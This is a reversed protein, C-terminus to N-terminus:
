GAWRPRWRSRRQAPQKGDWQPEPQGAIKAVLRGLDRTIQERGGPDMLLVPTGQNAAEVVRPGASVITHDVRVGLTQELHEMQVGSNARNLVITLKDRLGLTNALKLVQGTNRISSLEPTTVLLIRDAVELLQLMYEEMSPHTDVIVYDFLARYATAVRAPLFPPITEVLAPEPPALLAKINSSHPVLVNRLVDLDLQDGHHVLSAFSHEGRLDLLVSVDGFWLDADVLVVQKDYRQALEVALNTAITSRGVGGKPGFMVIMEGNRFPAHDGTQPAAPVTVATPPPAPAPLTLGARLVLAQIRLVLEDVRAPMRAYDDLASGDRPVPPAGPGESLLMLTPVPPDQHLVRYVAAFSYSSPRFTDLVAVARPRDVALLEQAADVTEVRIARLGRSELAAQLADLEPNATFLLVVPPADTSM